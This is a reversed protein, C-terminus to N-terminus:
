DCCASAQDTSWGDLYYKVEIKTGSRSAQITLDNSIYKLIKYIIKDFTHM